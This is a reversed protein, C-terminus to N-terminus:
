NWVSSKLLCVFKEVLSLLNKSDLNLDTKLKNNGGLGSDTRGEIRVGSSQSKM